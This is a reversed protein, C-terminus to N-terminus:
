YEFKYVYWWPAWEPERGGTRAKCGWLAALEDEEAQAEERSSHASIIQWNRFTHPHQSQWYKKRRETDTTIGVRCAM